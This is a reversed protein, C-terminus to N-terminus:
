AAAAADPTAQTTTLSRSPQEHPEFGHFADYFHKNFGICRLSYCPIVLEGTDYLRRVKLSRDEYASSQGKASARARACHKERTEEDLCLWESLKMEFEPLIASCYTGFYMWLNQECEIILEFSADELRIAADFFWYGSQAVSPVDAPLAKPPLPLSVVRQNGVHATANFLFHKSTDAAGIKLSVTKFDADVFTSKPFLQEIKARRQLGAEAALARIQIRNTQVQKLLTAHQIRLSQLQAALEGNEKALQTVNEFSAVNSKDILSRLEADAVQRRAAEERVLNLLEDLKGTKVSEKQEAVAVPESQTGHSLKLKELELNCEFYKQKWLEVLGQANSSDSTAPQESQPIRSPAATKIEKGPAFTFVPPQQNQAIRSPTQTATGKELGSSFKSRHQIQSTGKPASTTIKRGPAAFNMQSPSSTAMGREPTFVFDFHPSRQSHSRGRIPRTSKGNGIGQFSLTVPSHSQATGTPARATTDKGLAFSITTESPVPTTLGKAPDFSFAPPVKSQANNGTPARPTTDKGLKFSLSTENTIPTMAGKVPGFNFAPPVKSQATGSVDQATTDKGLSFDFSTESVAKATTGKGPVFGLSADSPMQTMASKAPLLSFALPVKSQATGSAAQAATDKGLSFDLITESPAPTTTGKAPVNFSFAPPVKSQATGSAAQATADKVSSLSTESPAPIEPGKAPKFTFNSNTPQSASNRKDKTFSFATFQRSQSTVSPVFNTADRGSGFMFIPANQQAAPTPANAGDGGSKRSSLSLGQFSDLAPHEM